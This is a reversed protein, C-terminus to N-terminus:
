VSPLTARGRVVDNLFVLRQSLETWSQRYAASWRARLQAPDKDGEILNAQDRLDEAVAQWLESVDNLSAGIGEGARALSRGQDRVVRAWALQGRVEALQQYLEALAANNKSLAAAASGLDKAGSVTAKIATVARAGTEKAAARAEPTDDDDDEAASASGTEGEEENDNWLAPDGALNAIVEDDEDPDTEVPASSSPRTAPQVPKPPPAPKPPETTSVPKNKPTTVTKKKNKKKNPTIYDLATSALDSVKNGIEDASDLIDDINSDIEERTGAILGELRTVEGREAGLTKIVQEAASSLDATAAGVSQAWQDADAAFETAMDGARSAADAVSRFAHAARNAAEAALPASGAPLTRELAKILNVVRDAPALLNTSSGPVLSSLLYTARDRLQDQAADAAALLDDQPDAAAPQREIVLARTQAGIVKSFSQKLRQGLDAQPSLGM